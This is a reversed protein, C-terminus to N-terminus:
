RSECVLHKIKKILRTSANNVSEMKAFIAKRAKWDSEPLADYQRYFLWYRQHLREGCDMLMELKEGKSLPKTAYPKPAPTLNADEAIQILRCDGLAASHFYYYPTGDVVVSTVPSNSTVIRKQFMSYDKYDNRGFILRSLAQFKPEQNSHPRYTRRVVFSGGMRIINVYFGHEQSQM